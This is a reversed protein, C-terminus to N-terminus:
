GISKLMEKVSEAIGASSLGADTLQSGRSSHRIYQRPMGLISIRGATAKGSRAAEELLASGFGCALRHDEVTVISKGEDLLSLIKEDVPVAFRANVVDVSIREKALRDAAETEALM